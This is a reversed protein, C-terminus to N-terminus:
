IYANLPNLLINNWLWKFSIQCQREMYCLYINSYKFKTESGMNGSKNGLHGIRSQSNEEGDSRGAKYIM